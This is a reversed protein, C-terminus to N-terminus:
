ILGSGSPLQWKRRRRPWFEAWCCRRRRRWWRRSSGAGAVGAGRGPYQGAARRLRQPLQAARECLQLREAVGNDAANERTALLAQPDIDFAYARRAGLKLAAIALVGSGCGYDVVQQGACRRATSGNWACRPPRTPAPASRWAPTSGCWSRRPDHSRDRAASVGVAPARLAHRSFRAAVRAGLGSRGRRARQLASRSSARASGGARRDAGRRRARRQVAGAHPDAAM